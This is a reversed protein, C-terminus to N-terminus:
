MSSEVHIAPQSRPGASMLVSRVVVVATDATFIKPKPPPLGILWTIAELVDLAILDGTRDALRRGWHDRHRDEARERRLDPADPLFDGRWLPRPAKSATASKM